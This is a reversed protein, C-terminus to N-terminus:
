RKDFRGLHEVCRLPLIIKKGATDERIGEMYRTTLNHRLYTLLSSFLVSVPIKQTSQGNHHATNATNGGTNGGTNSIIIIHAVCLWDNSLEGVEWWAPCQQLHTCNHRHQDPPKGLLVQGVGPQPGGSALSGVGALQVQGTIATTATSVNCDLELNSLELELWDSGLQNGTKM